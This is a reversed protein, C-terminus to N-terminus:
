GSEPPPSRPSEPPPSSRPSEPPPPSQVSISPPPSQVPVPPSSQVSMPSPPSQVPIPPPPSSRVSIPPSQSPSGADTAAPAVPAQAAGVDVHRGQPAGDNGGNELKGATGDVAEGAFASELAEDLDNSFKSADRRARRTEGRLEGAPAV